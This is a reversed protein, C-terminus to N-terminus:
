FQYCDVKVFVSVLFLCNIFIIKVNNIFKRSVLFDKGSTRKRGKNSSRRDGQTTIGADPLMKVASVSRCSLGTVPTTVSLAPNDNGPTEM